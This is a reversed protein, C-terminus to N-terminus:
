SALYPVTLDESIHEWIESGMTFRMSDVVEPRAAGKESM